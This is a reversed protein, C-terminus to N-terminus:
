RCSIGGSKRCVFGRGAFHGFVGNKKSCHGFVEQSIKWTWFWMSSGGEGHPGHVFSQVPPCCDRSCWFRGVQTIQLSEKLRDIYLNLLFPALRGFLNLLGVTMLCGREVGDLSNPDLERPPTFGEARRILVYAVIVMSVGSTLKLFSLPFYKFVMFSTYGDLAVIDAHISRLNSCFGSKHEAPQKPSTKPKPPLQPPPAGASKKAAKHLVIKKSASARNTLLPTKPDELDGHDSDAM